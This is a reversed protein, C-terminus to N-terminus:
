VLTILGFTLGGILVWSFAALLAPRLGRRVLARLNTKLGMGALAVALLVPVAVRAVDLAPAPVWGTSAVLVMAIFGVVFWPVPVGGGSETGNRRASLAGLLLVVPALALVRVLKSVTGVEGAVDGHQFAAATVQAVEHVSAGVWLGYQEPSLGALSGLFPWLIMALTGFLTVTAVAYAADEEPARVVTNAAVVASAGCISSGAAILDTLGAPVGLARGMRRTLFLCAFLGTLIIALGSLGVSLVQAITLQLGLLVIGWRLIVKVAFTAGPEARSALPTLNGVAIGMVIALILPSLASLGPLRAAAFALAAIAICIVLGPIAAPTPRVAFLRITTDSM